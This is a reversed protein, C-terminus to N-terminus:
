TSSVAILQTSTTFAVQHLEFQPESHPRASHFHNVSQQQDVPIEVVDCFDGAGIPLTLTHGALMCWHLDAHRPSTRTARFLALPTISQVIRSHTFSCQPSSPTFTKSPASDCSATLSDAEHSLTWFSLKQFVSKIVASRKTMHRLGVALHGNLYKPKPSM